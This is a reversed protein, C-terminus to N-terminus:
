RQILSIIYIYDCINVCLHTLYTEKYLFCFMLHMKFDLIWIKLNLSILSSNTIAFHLDIFWLLNWFNNYYIKWDLVKPFLYLLIHFFDAFALLQLVKFSHYCFLIILSKIIIRKLNLSVQIMFCCIIELTHKIKKVKFYQM